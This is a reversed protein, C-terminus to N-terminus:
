ESRGCENRGDEEVGLKRSGGGGRGSVRLGLFRSGRACAEPLLSSTAKEARGERDEM